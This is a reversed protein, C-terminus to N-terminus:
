RRLCSTTHIGHYKIHRATDGRLLEISQRSIGLQKALFRILATNAKGKEPVAQVRIKYVGNEDRAECRNASANPIVRIAINASPPM